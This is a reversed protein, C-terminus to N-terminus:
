EWPKLGLHDSCSNGPYGPTDFNQTYFNIQVMGFTANLDFEPLIVNGLCPKIQKIFEVKGFFSYKVAASKGCM